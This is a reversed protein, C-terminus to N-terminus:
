ITFNKLDSHCKKGGNNKMREMVRDQDDVGPDAEVNLLVLFTCFCFLIMELKKRGSRKSSM